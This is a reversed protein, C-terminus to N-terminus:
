DSSVRVLAPSTTKALRRPQAEADGIWVPPTPSGPERAAVVDVRTVTAVGVAAPATVKSAELLRPANSGSSMQAPLIVAVAVTIATMAIGAIGLGVRPIRPEYHNM